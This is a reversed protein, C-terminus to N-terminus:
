EGYENLERCEFFTVINGLNRYKDRATKAEEWTAYFDRTEVSYKKERVILLYIKNSM